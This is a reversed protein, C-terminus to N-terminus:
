IKTIESVGPLIARGAYHVASYVTEIGCVNALQLLSVTATSMILIALLDM